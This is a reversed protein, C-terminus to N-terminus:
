GGREREEKLGAKKDGIGCVFEGGLVDGGYTKRFKQNKIKSKKKKKQMRLKQFAGEMDKKEKDEEEFLM